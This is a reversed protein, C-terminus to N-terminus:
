IPPELGQGDLSVSEGAAITRYVYAAHRELIMMDFSDLAVMRVGMRLSTLSSKRAAGPRLLIM